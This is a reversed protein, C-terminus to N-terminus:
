GIVLVSLWALSVEIALMFSSVSVASVFFFWGLLFLVKIM